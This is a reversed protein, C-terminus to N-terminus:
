TCMRCRRMDSPNKNIGEPDRSATSSNLKTNLNVLAETNRGYRAPNENHVQLRVTPFFYTGKLITIPFPFSMCSHKGLCERMPAYFFSILYLFLRRLHSSRGSYPFFCHLFSFYFDRRGIM